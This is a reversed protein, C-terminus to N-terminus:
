LALTDLRVSRVDLHSQHLFSSATAQEHLVFMVFGVLFIVGLVLVSREPPGAMRLRAGVPYDRFTTLDCGNKKAREDCARVAAGTLGQCYDSAGQAGASRPPLEGAMPTEPFELPQERRAHPSRM